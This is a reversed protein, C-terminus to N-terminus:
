TNEKKKIQIDDDRSCNINDEEEFINNIQNNKNNIKSPEILELKNLAYKKFFDNKKDKTLKILNDEQWSNKDFKDNDSINKGELEEDDKLQCITKSICKINKQLNYLKNQYLTNENKLKKIQEELFTIKEKLTNIIKIYKDKQENFAALIMQIGKKLENMEINKENISM